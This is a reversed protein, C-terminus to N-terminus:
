SKITVTELITQGIPTSSYPVKPRQGQCRKSGCRVAGYSGIMRALCNLAAAGSKNSSLEDPVLLIGNFNDV